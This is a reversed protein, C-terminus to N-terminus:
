GSIRTPSLELTSVIGGIILLNDFKKCIERISEQHGAPLTIM